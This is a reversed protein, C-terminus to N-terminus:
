NNERSDGGAIEPQLFWVYKASIRTKRHDNGHIGPFRCRKWNSQRRHTITRRTPKIFGCICKFLVSKGSGNNGVIAHTKGAEFDCTIGKLVEEERFTKHLNEVRIKIKKM